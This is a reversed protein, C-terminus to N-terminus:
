FLNCYQKISNKYEFSFPYPIHKRHIIVSIYSALIASDSKFYKFILKVLNSNCSRFSPM